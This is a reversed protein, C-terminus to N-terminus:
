DVVQRFFWNESLTFGLNVRFFQERVLNQQLTGRQGLSVGLHLDSLGSRNLPLSFGATVSMESVSVSKVQYPFQRYNVGFRYPLRRFLSTSSSIDPTYEVGLGANITNAFGPNNGSFDRYAGWREVGFDATLALKYPNELTLGIRYGGPLSVHGQQRAILTDTTGGVPNEGIYATQSQYRNTKLRAPLDYTGGVNLYLKDHIKHRYALGGKFMFDHHALQETLTMRYDTYQAADNPDAVFTTTSSERFVNGFVYSTTLGAYLQSGLRFGNAWAVKTTGGSGKYDYETFYLTNPILRLQRVEYDLFGYPMFNLSTTWRKGAPFVLSLYNITGGAVQQQQRGDSLRKLQGVVAVDLTTVRNRALLAPNLGNVFLGNAYSVGAGGMQQQPVTAPSYIEGFGLTSYPSNGLGQGQAAGVSVLGIVM